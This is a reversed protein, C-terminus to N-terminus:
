MSLQKFESAAFLFAAADDHVDFKKEHEGTVDDTWTVVIERPDFNRTIKIKNVPTFGMNAEREM